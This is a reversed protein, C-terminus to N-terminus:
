LHNPLTADEHSYTSNIQQRNLKTQTFDTRQCEAGCFFTATLDAGSLNANALLSNSFNTQRLSANKLNAFPLIAGLFSADTLIAGEMQVSPIFAQDLCSKSFIVNQLNANLPLRLKRLDTRHLELQYEEGRKYRNRRRSLVTMVAQIDEALKSVEGTEPAVQRKKDEKEPWPSRVRVYATLIEM